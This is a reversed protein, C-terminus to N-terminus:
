RASWARKRFKGRVIQSVNTRHMGFKRALVAQRVGTTYLRRMEAIDADSIRTRSGADGFTTWHRGKRLMDATNEKATGPFLHAPNV